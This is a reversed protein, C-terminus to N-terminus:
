AFVINRQAFHRDNLDLNGWGPSPDDPYADGNAQLCYHIQGPSGAPNSWQLQPLEVWLSDNAWIAAKAKGVVAYDMMNPMTSVRVRRVNVTAPTGASCEPNDIAPRSMSTLKIGGRGPSVTNLTAGMATVQASGVPLNDQLQTILTLTRLTDLIDLGLFASTIGSIPKPVLAFLGGCPSHCFDWGSVSRTATDLNWPYTRATNSQSDAYPCILTLNTQTLPQSQVPPHRLELCTSAGNWGLNLGTIVDLATSNGSLSLIAGRPITRGDPRTYPKTAYVDLWWTGGGFAQMDRVVVAFFQGDPSWAWFSQLGGIRSGTAIKGHFFWPGAIRGNADELQFQDLSSVYTLKSAGGPALVPWTPMFTDIFSTVSTWPGTKNCYCPGIPDLGTNTVKVYTYYLASTPKIHGGITKLNTERTSRLRIGDSNWIATAPGPELKIKGPM